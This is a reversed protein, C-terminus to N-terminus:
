STPGLDDWDIREAAEVPRLLARGVVDDVAQPSIGDAPRLADLDAATLVHGTPLARGAALSRRVIRRTDDESPTPAKDGTGLGAHVAHVERVWTRLGDPDMSARHDPGPLSRDVTFHREIVAAGLVAAAISLGIEEFHDSFGVPDGTLGRLAEIARLNADGAPAPYQSVCHLLVVPVPELDVLARRVEDLTAMGTSLLVPRGLRALHRLFSTFTVDGSGVKVAAVDAEAVLFTAADISFPTCLFEIGLRRCHDALKLYDDRELQLGQLMELQSAAQGIQYDALPGDARTLREADFLQFKVADAGAEFAIEVLDHALAPDGNHNVGAEAILYPPGHGLPRPGIQINRM